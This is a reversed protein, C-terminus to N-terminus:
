ILKFLIMLIVILLFYKRLLGLWVKFWDIKETRGDIKGFLKEVEFKYPFFNIHTDPTYLYPIQKPFSIYNKKPLADWKMWFSIENHLHEITHTSISLEYFDDKIFDLTQELNCDIIGNKINSNNFDLVDIKGIKKKIENKLISKRWGSWM